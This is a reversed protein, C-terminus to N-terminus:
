ERWFEFFEITIKEPLNFKRIAEAQAAAFIDSPKLAQSTGTHTYRSGGSTEITLIYFHKIM